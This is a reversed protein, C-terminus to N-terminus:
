KEIKWGLKRIVKLTELSTRRDYARESEPLQDYPVLCPHEKRADNRVAGYKWGEALRGAAWVEHVNRALDEQLATLEGSLKVSSTDVPYPVYKSRSASDSIQKILLYHRIIRHDTEKFNETTYHKGGALLARNENVRDSVADLSQFDVLCAHRLLPYVRRDPVSFQRADLPHGDPIDNLDWRRVGNTRNFANWRLHETEALIELLEPTDIAQQLDIDSIAALCIINDINAAAARSSDRNFLITSTHWMDEARAEIQSRTLLPEESSYVCNVGKAMRDLSEDIVVEVSYITELDGFITVPYSENSCCAYHRPERVHAFISGAFPNGDRRTKEFLAIQSLNMAVNLNLSDDGLAVIVRDYHTLHEECWRYFPQSGVANDSGGLPNFALNYAEICEGFLVPYDGYRTEYDRDFITASFTSGVYQADCIEKHLLERGTWGFGLLLVKFQHNVRLKAVEKSGACDLMPYKRAFQRATLASQNFIHTEVALGEFLTYAQPLETRVYLSPASCRPCNAVKLAQQINFDQDETLFFHRHARPIYCATDMDEYLVVAGMSDLQEFIRKEEDEDDRLSRPLVFIAQQWVSTRLIDKALLVGGVSYGWFVNKNGGPILWRGSRNVLRRGFWSFAIMAFFLYALLHLVFFYIDKEFGAESYSGRSPFFISLTNDIPAFFGIVRNPAELTSYVWVGFGYLAVFTLLRWSNKMMMRHTLSLILWGLALVALSMIIQGWVPCCGGVWYGLLTLVGFLVVALVLMGAQASSRKFTNTM